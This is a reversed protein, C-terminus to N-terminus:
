FSELRGLCPFCGTECKGVESAREICMTDVDEGGGRIWSGDIDKGYIMEWVRGVRGLDLIFLYGLGTGTDLEEM